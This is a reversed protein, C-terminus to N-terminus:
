AELGRPWCDLAVRLGPRADDLSLTFHHLRAIATV